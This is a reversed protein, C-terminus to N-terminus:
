SNRHVYARRDGLAMERGARMVQVPGEGQALWGIRSVEIGKASAAQVFSDESEPAISALIEFDDGGTILAAFQDARAQERLGSALPIDDFVITGTCGSAATMKDADGVLGDSIDMAARAHSRLVEALEVRPEPVRYRSICAQRAEAELGHWPSQLDVLLDLGVTAAGIQGSLYLADGPRANFRHVMRGAPVLGIATVAIVCPAHTSITDGGLMHIGYRTQDEALGASFGALWDDDVEPGLAINLIYAHPDAGKSALDSLNVRLVKRAITDPPDDPLFHVGSAIMDSTVVQDFGAVPELQAADDVLGFAGEGALPRFFREILKFEDSRPM